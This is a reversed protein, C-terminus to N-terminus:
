APRHDDHEYRGADIKEIYRRSLLHALWVLGVIATTIGGGMMDHADPESLRSDALLEFILVAIGSVIFWIAMGYSLWGPRRGNPRRGDRSGPWFAKGIPEAPLGAVRRRVEPAGFTEPEPPGEERSRWVVDHFRPDDELATALRRWIEIGAAAGKARPGRAAPADFLLWFAPHFSTVQCSFRHRDKDQVDFAWGKEGAYSPASVKCGLATLIEGTAVAVNRGGFVHIAKATGVQDDPFDAIFGAWPKITM